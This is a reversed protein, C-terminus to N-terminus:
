KLTLKRNEREIFPKVSHLNKQEECENRHRDNFIARKISAPRTIPNSGVMKIVIPVAIAPLKKIRTCPKAVSLRKKALLQSFAFHGDVGTTSPIPISEAPRSRSVGPRKVSAIPSRSKTGGTLRPMAFHSNPWASLRPVTLNRLKLLPSALGGREPPAAGRSVPKLFDSSMMSASNSVISGCSLVPLRSSFLRWPLFSEGQCFSYSAFSQAGLQRFGGKM